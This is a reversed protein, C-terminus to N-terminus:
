APAAARSRRLLLEVAGIHMSTTVHAATLFAEDNVSVIASMGGHIPATNTKDGARLMASGRGHQHGSLARWTTRLLVDGDPTDQLHSLTGIHDLVIVGTPPYTMGLAEADHRYSADNEVRRANLDERAAAIEEPTAETRMKLVEDYYRRHEVEDLYELRLGRRRREVSDEPDLV